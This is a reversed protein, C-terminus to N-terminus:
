LTGLAKMQRTREKHIAHVTHSCQRVISKFGPLSPDIRVNVPLNLSSCDLIFQALHNHRPESLLDNWPFYSAIVNLLDPLLRNRTVATARCVTLLHGLTEDPAPPSPDMVQCMPCNAKLGRDPSLNEYCLYDGSLMKLHPRIM